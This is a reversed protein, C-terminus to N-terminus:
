LSFRSVRPIASKLIFGMYVKYLPYKNPIDTYGRKFTQKPPLCSPCAMGLTGGNEKPCLSDPDNMSDGSQIRATEKGKGSEGAEGLGNWADLLQPDLRQQRSTCWLFGHLGMFLDMPSAPM